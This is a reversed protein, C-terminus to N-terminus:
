RCHPEQIYSYLRAAATERAWAASEQPGEPSVLNKPPCLDWLWVPAASINRRYMKAPLSRSSPHGSSIFPLRNRLVAQVKQVIQVAPVFLGHFFCLLSGDVRDAILHKQVAEPGDTFLPAHRELADGGGGDHGLAALAHTREVILLAHHHEGAGAVQAEGRRGGIGDRTQHLSESFRGAKEVAVLKEEIIRVDGARVGVVHHDDFRNEM